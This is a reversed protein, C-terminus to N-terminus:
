HGGAAKLVHLVLNVDRVLYKNDVERESIHYTADRQLEDCLLCSRSLAQIQGPIVQHCVDWIELGIGM